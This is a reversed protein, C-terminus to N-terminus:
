LHGFVIGDEYKLDKYGYKELIEIAIRGFAPDHYCCLALNKIKGKRLSLDAGKILDIENGEIDCTLLDVRDIKLENLINDITDAEMPISKDDNGSGSGGTGDGLRNGSNFRSLEIFRGINDGTKKERYIAKKILVIGDKWIGGDKDGESNDGESNDGESDGYLEGRRIREEIIANHYPSPEILVIKSCRRGTAIRGSRGLFAGAEVYIDGEKLSYYKFYPHEPGADIQRQVDASIEM